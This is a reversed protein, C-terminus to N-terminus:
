KKNKPSCYFLNDVHNFRVLKFTIWFHDLVTLHGDGITIDGAHFYICKCRIGIRDNNIGAEGGLLNFWLLILIRDCLYITYVWFLIM